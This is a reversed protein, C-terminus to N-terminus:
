ERHGASLTLLNLLASYVQHLTNPAAKQINPPPPVPAPPPVGHEIQHLWGASGAARPSEGRACIVAKGDPSIMCWDPKGCVPCPNHRNVRLFNRNNPMPLYGEM